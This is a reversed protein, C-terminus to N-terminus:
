EYFLSMQKLENRHEIKEKNKIGMEKHGLLTKIGSLLQYFKLYADDGKLRKSISIIYKYIETDTEIFISMLTIATDLCLTLNNIRNLSRVRFDEFNFGNKKFRFQEEIKWRSAYNLVVSIVDEKSVIPRNTLLTMPESANGLYCFVSFYEKGDLLKVKLHSVKATLKSGKYVLPIVIKGKKKKGEVILGIKKNKVYIKRNKTVRVVFYQKHQSVFDFIKYDDYGRDFVFIGEYDRLHSCVFELGNFTYINISRFGPETESHFIDYIPMPHKTENTLATICSVRYGKEIDNNLSSGDRLRGLSEFKKGYPKIVDTDDVSFIKFTKPMMTLALKLLNDRFELDFNRNLFRSLREISKKPTIKENLSHVIDSLIISQSKLIGYIIDIYFKRTPKDFQMIIKELYYFFFRDYRDILKNFNSM